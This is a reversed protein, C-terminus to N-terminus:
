AADRRGRFAIEGDRARGRRAAIRAPEVTWGLHRAASATRLPDRWWARDAARAARTAAAGQASTTVAIRRSSRDQVRRLRGRGPVQRMAPAHAHVADRGLGDVGAHLDRHEARSAAIRRRGVDASRCQSHRPFRHHRSAAGARAQRQRRPHRQARGLRVCRHGGRDLTWHGAIDGTHRCGGSVYGCAAGDGGAGGCAPSARAPLLGPRELTRARAAGARRRARSCRSVRLRLARLISHGDGGADAAAHSRVALHSLRRAHGAVPPREARARAAVPRPADRIHVPAAAGSLFVKAAGVFCRHRRVAPSTAAM